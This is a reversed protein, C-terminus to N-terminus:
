SIVLTQGAEVSVPAAFELRTLSGERTAKPNLTRGALRVVPVPAAANVQLVQFTLKGSAAAISLTPGSRAIRGFGSAM